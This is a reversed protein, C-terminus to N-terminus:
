TLYKIFFERPTLIETNKYSKLDLLDFDGTIIIQAKSFEALHLISNDDKDRCVDPPKGRPALLTLNGKLFNIVEKVYTRKVKFKKYLVREVEDLIFDSVILEHNILCLDFVKYSLGETLLASLIVNTDFVIRV